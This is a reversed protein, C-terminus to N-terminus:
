TGDRTYSFVSQIHGVLSLLFLLPISLYMTHTPMRAAALIPDPPMGGLIFYQMTIQMPICRINTLM